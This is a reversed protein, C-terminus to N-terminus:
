IEIEVRESEPHLQATEKETGRPLTDLLRAFREPTTAEFILRLPFDVNFQERVRAIVQTGLLSHGGLEFFDDHIGIRDVGLLEQWIEVVARETDTSPAVYDQSLEPRPHHSGTAEAADAPAEKRAKPTELERYLSRVSEIWAPLHRTTVMVQSVPSYLVREFVQEAERNTIGFEGLTRAHMSQMTTAADAAMGAESWNDWNVAIVRTGQPNDHRAAFGDMYANSAGYASLGVSPVVASASSCLMVFDLDRDTLTDELWLTGAGKAAFIEDITETTTSGILSPGAIGAAHIIGALKGNRSRASAVIERMRALDSTDAAQVEVSGGLLQMAVLAQAKQRDAPSATEDEAIRSWADPTAFAKRAVLVVHASVTRALYQAIVLGIGGTGGTVIYTGGARLVGNAPAAPLSIPLSIYSPLWRTRGRYAVLPTETSVTLENAISAAIPAAADFDVDIVRTKVGRLELGVVDVLSAVATSSANAGGDQLVDFAKDTLVFLSCKRKADETARQLAQVLHFLQRFPGQPSHDIGAPRATYLIHTPSSGAQQLAELLQMHHEANATDMVYANPSIRSFQKGPVVVTVISNGSSALRQVLANSLELGPEKFVLWNAPASTGIASAEPVSSQWSRTYLWSNIDQRKKLPGSIERAADTKQKPSHDIWYRQREFPYTPLSIRGPTRGGHVHDWNLKVGAMWLQGMALMWHMDDTTSATARRTTAITKIGKVGKNATRVLALLTEGPGVEIFVGSGKKTLVGLGESFRVTHRLHAAWYDPSMAEEATIWTGTLNSVFPIKPAVPSLRALSDRTPGVIPDLMSSHFAHSTPLPQCAIRDAALTAAFAQIAETPGSVMIQKPANLAAICIEPPLRKVLEEETLSVALMSGRPVTQVLKGRGAVIHLLDDLSYTGAVCAAVYEGLSHGLMATPAIGAYLMQEALAYEIVFMAPQTISTEKLREAAEAEGEPRPYLITRLDVGLLPELVACCHDITARFLENSEYLGRGMNVYQAGQGPFLFYVEPTRSDTTVAVQNKLVQTSRLADLLEARDRAVFFARHPLLKRGAQLTFAIDELSDQPHDEVHKALRERLHALSSESNASLPFMQARPTADVSGHSSAGNSSTADPLLSTNRRTGRWEELSVHANTGGIGFASVGARFPESGTYSAMTGTVTFPTQGLGLEPNPREFHLTSPLVRHKIALAAKILGSVGAATDTHGINPKVSSVTCSATPLGEGFARALAAIEISDGVETGTGHAEVYRVTSPAFGAIKMSKRIVAAQGDVSPATYGVKSGGDNNIAAGHIVAYIHDRDRVAAALPKLLVAGAGRGIATGAAKADFARCRGDPSLIMGPEYVYGTNQPFSISVGGAIAMSCEGRRLSEFAMQTAVLSTSCASQVVVAPGTLNLKYAVRTALFDKDNGVMTALMAGTGMNPDLNQKRYSNAGCGAFVGVDKGSGTPDYGADEFAEWACELFVRQQPDVIEADRASFGFLPADFDATNPIYAAPRVYAPDSARSPDIGAAVIEEDTASHLADVNNCINSWYEAPTQAGAYRLAMGIIAVPAGSGEETKM